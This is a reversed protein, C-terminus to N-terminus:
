DEYKIEHGQARHFDEWKKVNKDDLVEEAGHSSLGKVRGGTYDLMWDMANEWAKRRSPHGYSYRLPGHLEPNHAEREAKDRLEVGENDVPTRQRIVGRRAPNVWEWAWTGTKERTISEMAEDFRGQRAFDEIMGIHGYDAEEEYVHPRWENFQYENLNKM